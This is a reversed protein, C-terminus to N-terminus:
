LNSNFVNDEWFFALEILSIFSMHGTHGKGSEEGRASRIDQRRGPARRRLKM